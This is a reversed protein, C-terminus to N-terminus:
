GHLQLDVVPAPGTNWKVKAGALTEGLARGFDDDLEAARGENKEAVGRYFIEFGVPQDNVDLGTFADGQAEARLDGARDHLKAEHIHIEVVVGIKADLVTGAVLAEQAIAHGAIGREELARVHDFGAPAHNLGDKIDPVGQGCPAKRVIGRARPSGDF